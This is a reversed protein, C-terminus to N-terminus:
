EKFVHPESLFINGVKAYDMYKEWDERLSKYEPSHLWQQFSKASKLDEFWIEAIGDIDTEWEPGADKVPHHQVYKKVAPHNAAIFLPAHIKEWHELFRERTFDDRRKLLGFSVIM